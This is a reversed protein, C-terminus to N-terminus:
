IQPRTWTLCQWLLFSFLVLVVEPITTFSLSLFGRLATIWYLIAHVNSTQIYIKIKLYKWDANQCGAYIVRGWSLMITTCHLSFELETLSGLWAASQNSLRPSARNMHVNIFYAHMRWHSPSKQITNHKHTHLTRRCSVDNNFIEYPAAILKQWLLVAKCGICLIYIQTTYYHHNIHSIVCSFVCPGKSM